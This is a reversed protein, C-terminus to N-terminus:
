QGIRKVEFEEFRAGFTEMDEVTLEQGRHQLPVDLRLHLYRAGRRNIEAVLNVPLTGLVTDGSKVTEVDLHSVAEAAIGQRRAWEVAGSHRTVFYTTM